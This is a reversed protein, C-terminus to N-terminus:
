GVTLLDSVDLVTYGSAGIQGNADLTGALIKTSCINPAIPVQKGDCKFTIGDALPMPTAKMTKLATTITSRTIDGTLGAAARGFGVMAQYGDVIPGSLESGTAYKNTVAAFLKFEASNPDSTSATVVKIGQLSGAIKATTSDICGPIVVIGGTFGVSKIAQIASACFSPVGIIAFQGPKHSLEAAIQPTMDATASPIAVVDVKVNARGYFLPAAARVAGAAAPLDTVIIAATKYRAQQALKAPGAIGYGLGNEMVFIGPTSLTKPDLSAGVFVPIGANALQPLMSGQQGSDSNVVALVKDTVFQTVCAAAGSPTQNTSCVDLKIPRGAIGGLYENIYQVSAKAGTLEGSLDIAATVGDYVFGISV